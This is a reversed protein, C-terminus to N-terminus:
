SAAIEHGLFWKEAWTSSLFYVTGEFTVLSLRPVLGQFFGTLGAESYVKKAATVFSARARTETISSADSAKSFAPFAVSETMMKTKTVDAPQTLTAAIATAILGEIASMYLGETDIGADTLTKTFFSSTVLDRIYAFSIMQFANQPIERLLQAEWGRYFGAVGDRDYAQKFLDDYGLKPQTQARQKILEAPIKILNQPFTALTSILLRAIFREEDINGYNYCSTFSMEVADLTNYVLYFSACAPVAALVTPTVGRFYDIKESKMSTGTLQSSSDAQMLTKMTDIPFSVARCIARFVGAVAGAFLFEGYDLHMHDMCQSISSVTTTTDVM